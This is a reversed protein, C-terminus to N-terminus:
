EGAPVFYAEEAGELAQVAGRCDRIRDAADQFSRRAETLSCELFHYHGLAELVRDTVQVIYGKYYGEDRNPLPAGVGYGLTQAGKRVAQSAGFLVESNCNSWYADHQVRWRVLEWAEDKLQNIWM